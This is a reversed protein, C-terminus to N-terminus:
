RPPHDPLFADRDAYPDEDDPTPMPRDARAWATLQRGLVRPQRALDHLRRAGTLLMVAKLEDIAREIWATAAQPGGARYARYIPLAAGCLRAGLAIAKAMELGNRVGGSAILELGVGDLMLLSAATPIGWGGLTEGLARSRTDGRLTEVRV